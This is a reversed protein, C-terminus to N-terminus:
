ECHCLCRDFKTGNQKCIGRWYRVDCDQVCGNGLNRGERAQPQQRVQDAVAGVGDQIGQGVSELTKGTDKVAHKPFQDYDVWGNDTSMQLKGDPGTRFGLADNREAKQTSSGPDSSCGVLAILILLFLFKKM